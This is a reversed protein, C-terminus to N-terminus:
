IPYTKKALMKRLDKIYQKNKETLVNRVSAAEPRKPPQSSCCGGTVKRNFKYNKM